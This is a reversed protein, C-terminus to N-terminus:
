QVTPCILPNEFLSPFHQDYISMLAAAGRSRVPSSPRTQKQGRVCVFLVIGADDSCLRVVVARCVSGSATGHYCHTRMKLRM